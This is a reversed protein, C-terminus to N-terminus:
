KTESRKANVKQLVREYRTRKENRVREKSELM